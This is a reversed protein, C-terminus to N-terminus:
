APQISDMHGATCEGRETEAPVGEGEGAEAASAPASTDEHGKGKNGPPVGPESEEPVAVEPAAEVM